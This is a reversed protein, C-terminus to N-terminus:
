IMSAASTHTEELRSAEQRLQDAKEAEGATQFEEAAIRLVRIAVQPDYYKLGCDSGICGFGPVATVVVTLRPSFTEFELYEKQAPAGCLGCDTADPINEFGLGSPVLHVPRAPSYDLQEVFFAPEGLKEKVM